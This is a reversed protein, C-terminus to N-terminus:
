TTLVRAPTSTIRVRVFLSKPNPWIGVEVPATVVCVLKPRVLGPLGGDLVNIVVAFGDRVGGLHVLSLQTTSTPSM